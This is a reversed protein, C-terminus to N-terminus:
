RSLGQENNIKMPKLDSARPEPHFLCVDGTGSRCVFLPFARVLFLTSAAMSFPAENWLVTVESKEAEGEPEWSRM